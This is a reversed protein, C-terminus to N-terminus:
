KRCTSASAAMSLWSTGKGYAIIPAGHKSCIKVIESVEETSQAFVVADPQVADFYDEGNGHHERVPAATSLREGVVVRLEEVLQDTVPAYALEAAM